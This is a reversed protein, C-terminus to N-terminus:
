WAFVCEEEVVWAEVQYHAHAIADESSSGFVSLLAPSKRKFAGEKKKKKKKEEGMIEPPTGLKYQLPNM